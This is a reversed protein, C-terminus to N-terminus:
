NGVPLNLNQYMQRIQQLQPQMQRQMYLLIAIRVAFGIIIMVLMYALWRMCGRMLTNRPAAPAEYRPDTAFRPSPIETFKLTNYAVAEESGEEKVQTDRSLSGHQYLLVLEKEALPGM